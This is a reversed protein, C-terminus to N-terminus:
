QTVLTFIYESKGYESFDKEKILIKISEKNSNRVLLIFDSYNNEFYLGGNELIECKFHEISKDARKVTIVGSKGADGLKAKPSTGYEILYMVISTGFDATQVILNSNSTASNSFKGKSYNSLVSTGTEDGFDDVTMTEKWIDYEIKQANITTSLIITIIILFLKKM